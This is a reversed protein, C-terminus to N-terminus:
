KRYNKTESWFSITALQMPSQCVLATRNNPCAATHISSGPQFLYQDASRIFSNQDHLNEYIILYHVTLTTGTSNTAVGYREIRGVIIESSSEGWLVGWILIMWICMMEDM